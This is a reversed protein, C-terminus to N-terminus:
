IFLGKSCQTNTVSRMTYQISIEKGPFLPVLSKWLGLSIPRCVSTHADKVTQAILNINLGIFDSATIFMSTFTVCLFGRQPERSTNNKKSNTRRTNM